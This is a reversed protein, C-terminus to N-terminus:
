KFKSKAFSYSVGPNVNDLMSTFLLVSNNDELLHSRTGAQMQLTALSICILQGTETKNYLHDLLLMIQSIGQEVYLDQLALVGM